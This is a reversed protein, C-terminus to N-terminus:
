IGEGSYRKLGRKWIFMTSFGIAIIFVLQILIGTLIQGENLKGLYLSVPFYILYAFPMFILFAYFFSSLISLPFYAGSAFELFWEFLFRPGMAERSWFAFLSVLYSLLYYLFIAFIVSIIFFLIVAPNVQWFFNAKFFYVFIIVEFIAAILNMSRHVLETSFVYWFHNIPKVLYVSFTGDNIEQAARRSQAGFIVQRIINVLFVYTALEVGTYGGFRGSKESLSTWVFYLLLLVVFSRLRWLFFDVRYELEREWSIKFVTWYKRM